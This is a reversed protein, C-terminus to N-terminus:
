GILPPARPNYAVQVDDGAFRLSSLSAYISTVSLATAVAPAGCDALVGPAGFLPCPTTLHHGKHPDDEPAQHGDNSHSHHDSAAAMAKQMAIAALEHQCQLVPFTVVRIVLLLSLLVPLFGAKGLVGSSIRLRM